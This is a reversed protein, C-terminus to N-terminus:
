EIMYSARSGPLDKRSPKWLASPRHITTLNNSGPRHILTFLGDIWNGWFEPDSLLAQWSLPPNTTCGRSVSQAPADNNYFRALQEELLAKRQPEAMSVMKRVWQNCVMPSSDWWIELGPHTKSLREVLSDSM